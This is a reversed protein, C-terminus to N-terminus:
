SSMATTEEPVQRSASQPARAARGKIESIRLNVLKTPQVVRAVGDLAKRLEKALGEAVEQTQGKPLELLRAGTAAHRISLGEGIGLDALNVTESARQLFHCYTLGESEAYAELTILVAPTRAGSGPSQPRRRGRRDSLNQWPFCRLVLM